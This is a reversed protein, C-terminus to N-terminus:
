MTVVQWFEEVKSDGKLALRFLKPQGELKEKENTYVEPPRRLPLDTRAFAFRYPV